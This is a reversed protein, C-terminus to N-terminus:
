NRVWRWVEDGFSFSSENVWSVTVTRGNNLSITGNRGTFKISGRTLENGNADLVRVVQGGGSMNAGIVWQGADSTNGTIYLGTRLTPNRPIVQQAYGAGVVFSLIFLLACIKKMKMFDEQWLKNENRLYKNFL